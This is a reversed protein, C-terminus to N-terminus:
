NGGKTLIQKFTMAIIKFDLLVSAARAYSLDLAKRQEPTAASRLTAQALGTIGPKVSNRLLWEDHTYLSKQAPVDPRPGVISMDGFFVNVIQPLEDLSTRRIFRGVSTIRPDGDATSYGGRSEANVTMSRFKYMGFEVGDLGVRVQKFFVPGRDHLYVALAVMLMLPSMVLLALGALSVDILRKM